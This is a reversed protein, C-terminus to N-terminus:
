GGSGPKMTMDVVVLLLIVTEIRSILFIKQM